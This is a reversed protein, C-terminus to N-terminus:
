PSGPGGPAPSPSSPSPTALRPRAGVQGAVTSWTSSGTPCGPRGSCRSSAIPWLPTDSAPKFVVTNGAVLAPTLKWAPIAIPFNWPTIAGVVGVPIRVSQFKNPLKRPDIHGVLRRGEGAMYFTM